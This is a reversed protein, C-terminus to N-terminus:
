VPGVAGPPMSGPLTQDQGGPPSQSPAAASSGPLISGQPVTSGKITAWTVTNRPDLLQGLTVNYGRILCYGWLGLSYGAWVIGLGIAPM